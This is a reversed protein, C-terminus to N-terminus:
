ISNRNKKSRKVSNNTRYTNVLSEVSSTQSRKRSLKQIRIDSIKNQSSKTLIKVSNLHSKDVAIKYFIGMNFRVFPKFKKLKLDRHDEGLKKMLEEEKKDEVMEKIFKILMKCLEKILAILSLLFILFEIILATLVIFICIRQGPLWVSRDLEQSTSSNGYKVKKFAMACVLSLFLM